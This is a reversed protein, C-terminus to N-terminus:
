GSPARSTNWCHTPPQAALLPGDCAQEVRGWGQKGWDAIQGGGEQAVPDKGGGRGRHGRAKSPHLSLRCGGRVSHQASLPALGRNIVECETEM